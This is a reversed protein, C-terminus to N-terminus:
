MCVCVCVCRCVCVTHWHMLWIKLKPLSPTSLPFPLYILFSQLYRSSSNTDVGCPRSGVALQRCMINEFNGVFACIVVTADRNSHICFRGFHGIPRGAGNEPCWFISEPIRPLESVNPPNELPLSWSHPSVKQYLLFFIICYSISAKYSRLYISLSTSCLRSWAPASLGLCAGVRVGM